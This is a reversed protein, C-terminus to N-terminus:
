LNRRGRRVLFFKIIKHVDGNREVICGLDLDSKIVELNALLISAQREPRRETGRRFLIVSPRNVPRSALITGFDTDASVLVRDEIEAREFVLDDSAAQMGYDRVHVADHGAEGLIKAVVPSLANDILFRM